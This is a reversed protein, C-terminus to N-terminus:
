DLYEVAPLYFRFLGGGTSLFPGWHLSSAVWMCGLYKLGSNSRDLFSAPVFISYLRFSLANLSQGMNTYEIEVASVL